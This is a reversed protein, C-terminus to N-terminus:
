EELDRPAPPWRWYWDFEGGWGDDPELSPDRPRWSREWDIQPLRPPPSGTQGEPPESAGSAGTNKGTPMTAEEALPTHPGRPSLSRRGSDSTIQRAASMRSAANWRM